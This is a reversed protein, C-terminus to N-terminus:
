KGAPPALKGDMGREPAEGGLARAILTANHDLMGIYTGEYTGTAGMADSFLEGGIAVTHGRSAAGAIVAKINAASVSSEVFVAKVKKTVLLDVLKNIDDVGAESETSIGQIGRVELAYARGFYNFADHATVLVRQEAPVSAIVRKVYEHLRALEAEYRRANAQYVERGAPDLDSLQDAVLAACRSWALVDMWVHPDTHGQMEEPELLYSPELRATVAYVPKGDTALKVFSDTMKGELVLGSYLVVDASTLAAVVDRTPKFLHPDVGTGIITEVKAREGAVATAIDAVMATTAVLRYPVKDLRAKGTAPPAGEKCGMLVVVGLGIAISATRM